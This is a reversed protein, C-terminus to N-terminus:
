HKHKRTKGGLSAAPPADRRRTKIFRQNNSKELSPKNTEIQKNKVTKNYVPPIVYPRGTFEAFAKRIANYKTNCKSESIQEATLSTGPHLEMDITIAYAIKSADRDEQRKAQYQAKTNYPYRYPSTYRYPPPYNNYRRTYEGGIIEEDEPDDGTIMSIEEEPNIVTEEETNNEKFETKSSPLATLNLISGISRINPFMDQFDRIFIKSNNDNTLLIKKVSLDLQKMIYPYLSFNEKFIDESYAYLSGYILM